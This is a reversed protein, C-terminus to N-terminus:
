IKEYLYLYLHGLVVNNIITFIIYLETLHDSNIILVVYISDRLREKIANYLDTTIKQYIKMQPTNRNM